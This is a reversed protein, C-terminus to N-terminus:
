PTRVTAPRLHGILGHMPRGALRGPGHGSRLPQWDSPLRQQAWLAARDTRDIRGTVVRQWSRALRLLLNRTRCTLAHRTGGPGCRPSPWWPRRLVANPAPLPFRPRSRWCARWWGVSEMLTALRGTTVLIDVDGTPQVGGVVASGHAYADLVDQGLIERVLGLVEETQAAAVMQWPDDREAVHLGGGAPVEPNSCAAASIDLGDLFFCGRRGIVVRHYAAALEGNTFRGRIM